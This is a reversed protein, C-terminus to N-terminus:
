RLGHADLLIDDGRHGRRPRLLLRPHPEAELLARAPDDGRRLVHEGAPHLDDLQDLGLDALVLGVRQHALREPRELVRLAPHADRTRVERRAPQRIEISANGPFDAFVSATGRPTTPIM